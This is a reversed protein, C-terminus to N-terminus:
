WYTFFAKVKMQIHWNLMSCVAIVKWQKM